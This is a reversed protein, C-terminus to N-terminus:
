KKAPWAAWLALFFTVLAGIPKALKGIFEFVKMAGRWSNLIEVLDDTNSKITNTAQTNLALAEEVTDFRADVGKRWQDLNAAVNDIADKRNQDDANM